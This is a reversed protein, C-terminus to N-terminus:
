SKFGWADAVGSVGMYAAVVTGIVTYVPTALEMLEPFAVAAAPYVALAVALSLWAMRRMNRWRAAQDPADM